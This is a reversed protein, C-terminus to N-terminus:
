AARWPRAYAGTKHFIMQVDSILQSRFGGECYHFYFQWLRQLRQDFGLSALRESERVFNERWRRLTEAYDLGIDELNVLKLAPSRRAATVLRTISPIFAGPFIHKKIFDVERLAAEYNQDQMTIGQLLFAGGPKLLRDCTAFYLDVFDDGVAEVMEISVVKSFQGELNRYDDLLVTIRDTLGASGIRSVAEAHQAESITTTTVRCGFNSAAFIAFGGWGTGIELVHDDPELKLKRCITLLKLDSAEDLSVADPPRHAPFMASSYMMRRDLFAKFFENSLDYHAAINRRSGTLTNAAALHNARDLIARVYRLAGDIRSLQEQNAVFLRVLATLENTSWDGDAFAEGAAVTGGLCIRRYFRPHHVHVEITPQGAEGLHWHGGTTIDHLKIRGGKMDRLARVILRQAWRDLRAPRVAAEPKSLLSPDNTRTFM